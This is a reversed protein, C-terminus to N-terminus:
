NLRAPTGGIPKKSPKSKSRSVNRSPQSIVEAEGKIIKEM